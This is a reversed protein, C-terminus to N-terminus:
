ILLLRLNHLFTCCSVCTRSILMPLKDDLVRGTTSSFSAQFDLTKTMDMGAYARAFESASHSVAIADRCRTFWVIGYLLVGGFVGAALLLYLILFAALRAGTVETSKGGRLCRKNNCPSTMKRQVFAPIDHELPHQFHRGFVFSSKSTLFAARSMILTHLLILTQSAQLFPAVSFNLPLQSGDHEQRYLGCALVSPVEILERRTTPLCLMNGLVVEQM